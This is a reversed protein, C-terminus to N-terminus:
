REDRASNKKPFAFFFFASPRCAGGDELALSLHVSQCLSVSVCLSQSLQEQRPCSMVAMLFNDSRRGLLSDVRTGRYACLVFCSTDAQKAVGAEAGCGAWATCCGCSGIDLVIHRHAAFTLPRTVCRM